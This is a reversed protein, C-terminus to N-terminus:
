LLPRAAAEQGQQDMGHRRRAWSNHRSAKMPASGLRWASSRRADLSDGSLLALVGLGLLSSSCAWASLIRPPRGERKRGLRGEGRGGRGQARAAAEQTGRRHRQGGGCGASHVSLHVGRVGGPGPGSGPQPQWHEAGHRQRAVTRGAGRSPSVRSNSTSPEASGPSPSVRSNSTSTPCSGAPPELKFAGTRSQHFHQCAAEHVYRKAYVIQVDSTTSTRAGLHGSQQSPQQSRKLHSWLRLIRRVRSARLGHGPTLRAHFDWAGESHRQPPVAAGARGRLLSRLLLALGLGRRPLAGRVGGTEPAHAGRPAPPWAATEASSALGPLYRRPAPVPAYRCATPFLPSGEGAAPCLAEGPEAPGVEPSPLKWSCAGPGLVLLPIPRRCARLLLVLLGNQAKHSSAEVGKSAVCHSRKLAQSGFLMGLFAGRTCARVLTSQRAGRKV